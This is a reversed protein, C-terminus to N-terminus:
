DHAHGGPLGVAAGLWFYCSWGRQYREKSREDATYLLSELLQRDQLLSLKVVKEPRIFHRVRYAVQKQPVESQGNGQRMLRARANGKSSAGKARMPKGDIEKNEVGEVILHGGLNGQRWQSSLEALWRYTFRGDECSTSNHILVDVIGLKRAEAPGITRGTLLLSLANKLGILLPLRCCGGAAAVFM